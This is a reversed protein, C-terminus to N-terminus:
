FTEEHIEPAEEREAVLGLRRLLRRVKKPSVSLRQAVRSVKRNEREWVKSILFAEFEEVVTQLSKGDVLGQSWARLNPDLKSERIIKQKLSQLDNWLSGHRDVNLYEEARDASSRALEQDNFFGNMLVLGQCTYARALIRRSQTHEAFDVAERAYDYALQAFRGPEETGSIQEEYRANAIMAQVIRARCMLLYDTKAMGLDFGISASQEAKDLYGADLYIESFGIQVNGSGHHSPFRQYIEGAEALEAQAEELLQRMRELEGAKAPGSGAGGRQRQELDADIRRRWEAALLRKARAINALSRAYHGELSPRHRFLDLSAEFYQIAHEYRGERRAIRGYTSQINGLTIYDDSDKLAAEAEQLARVAERTSGKQFLLWSEQTQIVAALKPMPIAAAVERAKQAFQLASDYEGAQRLARAKWFNALSVVKPNALDNSIALIFELHELAAPANEQQACLGAQALRVHVYEKLPLDVLKDREYRELIEALAGKDDFGVAVWQALIGVAFGAGPMNPEASRFDSLAAALLRSGHEMRREDLADTLEKM